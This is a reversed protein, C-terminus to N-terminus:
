LIVSFVVHDSDRCRDATIGACILKIYKKKKVRPEFLDSRCHLPYSEYFEYQGRLLLNEPVSFWLNGYISKCKYLPDRQM